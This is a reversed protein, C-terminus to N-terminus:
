TVEISKVSQHTIASIEKSTMNLKLFTCIKVEGPTLDLAYEKLRKYYDNHVQKFRLEFEEWVDESAGGQLDFIIRQILNHNEPKMRKKLQLLRNSISGLLENKKLLYLVTAALEKDKMVIDQNRLELDQELSRNELQIRKSRDKALSYLLGTIIFGLALISIILSNRLDRKQLEAERIKEEKEYEYKVQLKTQEKISAENILSDSLMKYEKFAKLSKDYFGKSEYLMSLNRAATERTLKAGASSALDKAKEASILAHDFNGTLMYYGTLNNYSKAMGNLDDIAQRHKLSEQLYYYAEEEKNQKLSVNGLNNYIVGLNQHDNLKEALTLAKKYYMLATDNEDKEEYLNAIGNFLTHIRDDGLGRGETKSNNHLYLAKHYYVLAKDFDKMKDFLAGLNHYLAFLYNVNNSSELVTLSKLYKGLAESYNGMFVLSNGIKHESIAILIPNEIDNAIELAQTSYKHSQRLDDVWYYDSLEWLTKVKLSDRKSNQLQVLLSDLAIKDQSFLLSPVFILFLLSFRLLSTLFSILFPFTRKM